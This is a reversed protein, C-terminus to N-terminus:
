AGGDHTKMPVSITFTTGYGKRTAVRIKGGAKHVAEQVAALGIGRGSLITVNSSTSFGSRFILGLLQPATPKEDPRILGSARGHKELEELSIGRGDDEFIFNVQDEVQMIDIRLNAEASKGAEEREAPLEIGHDVMNRVIHVFSSVLREWEEPIVRTQGGTILLPAIRKAKKLALDQAMQPFRAFLSALPRTRYRDLAEILKSDGPLRRRVHQEIKLYHDKPILISEAEGIWSRGLTSTVLASESNFVHRLDDLKGDLSVEVGLAAADSLYDEIAHAADQTRNFGFFGATGKFTHVDRLVQELNETPHALSSLLREADRAFSGFFEKHSMVRLLLDRRENEGRVREQLRREETVDTLIVMIRETTVAQYNVQIMRGRITVEHDLLDFIVEPKSQGQFALTLGNVFEEGQDRNEYLLEDIRRGAIRGGFIRECEKSHEPNVVFDSGFSLFGQGSVDLLSQISSTREAVREELGRNISNLRDQFLGAFWGVPGWFFPATCVLIFLVYVNPSIFKIVLIAAVPMLIGFFVGFITYRVRVSSRRSSVM